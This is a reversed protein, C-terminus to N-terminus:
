PESFLSASISLVSHTCTHVKGAIQPFYVRCDHRWGPTIFVSLCVSLCAAAAATYSCPDRKMKGLAHRDTHPINWRAVSFQKGLPRAQLRESTLM